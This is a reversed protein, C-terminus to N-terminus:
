GNNNIQEFDELSIEGRLLLDMAISPIDNDAQRNEQIYQQVTAISTDPAELIARLKKTMILFDFIAQRGAYGTYDCEPCGGPGFLNELPIENRTCFNM